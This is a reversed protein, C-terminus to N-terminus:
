AAGNEAMINQSANNWVSPGYSTGRIQPGTGSSTPNVVSSLQRKSDSIPMM